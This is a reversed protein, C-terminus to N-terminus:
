GAHRLEVDVYAFRNPFVLPPAPPGDPHACGPDPATVDACRDGCDNRRVLRDGVVSGLYHGDPAVVDNGQWPQWGIWRGDLDFVYPDDWSRRFAIAHGALDFLYVTM